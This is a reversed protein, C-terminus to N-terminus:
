YDNQNVEENNDDFFFTIRGTAERVKGEKVVFAYPVSECEQQVKVFISAKLYASAFEELAEKIREYSGISTTDGYGFFKNADDEFTINDFDCEDLAILHDIQKKTANCTFEWSRYISM